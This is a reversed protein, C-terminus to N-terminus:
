GSCLPCEVSLLGQPQYPEPVNGNTNNRVEIGLEVLTQWVRKISDPYAHICGLSNPMPEPPSWDPWEGTHLLIGDRLTTVDNTMLIQWNGQLGRVARNIPYPCFESTNSEPSNLDFECLGTPTAGDSAFESLGSDTSNWSPWNPAPYSEAGHVRVTFNFLYSGNGAILYATAEVSRNTSPLRILVKYQYGLEFPSLGNDFYNDPSLETLIAMATIADLTGRQAASPVRAAQFLSLCTLTNNDFTSSSSPLESDSCYRTARFLLIRNLVLVDRGSDGLQLQRGFPWLPFTAAASPASSLSSSVAVTVFLAITIFLSKM